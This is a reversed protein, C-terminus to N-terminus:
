GIIFEIIHLNRSCVRVTREENRRDILSCFTTAIGRDGNGTEM